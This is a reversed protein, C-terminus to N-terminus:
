NSDLKGLFLFSLGSEFWDCIHGKALYLICCFFRELPVVFVSTKLSVLVGLTKQRGFRNTKEHINGKRIRGDERKASGLWSGTLCCKQQIM